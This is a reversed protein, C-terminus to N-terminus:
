LHSELLAFSIQFFVASMSPIVDRILYLAKILCLLIFISLNRNVRPLLKFPHKIKSILYLYLYYYFDDLSKSMLVDSKM